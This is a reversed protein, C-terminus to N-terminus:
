EAEGGGPGLEPDIACSLVYDEYEVLNGLTTLCWSICRNVEGDFLQESKKGRRVLSVDIRKQDHDIRATVPGFYKLTSM